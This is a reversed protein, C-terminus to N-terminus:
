VIGTGPAPLPVASIAASSNNQVGILSDDSGEYPGQTTDQVVSQGATTITILFQCGQDASVPPCQTFLAQAGAPAWAAIAAALLVALGAIRGRLSGVMLSIM